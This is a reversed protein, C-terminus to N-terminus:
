DTAINIAESVADDHLVVDWKVIGKVLERFSKNYILKNKVNSHWGYGSTSTNQYCRWGRAEWDAPAKVWKLRSNWVKVHQKVFDIEYYYSPNGVHGLTLGFSEIFEALKDSDPNDYFGNPAGTNNSATSTAFKLVSGMVNSPYASSNCQFKFNGQPTIIIINARTM